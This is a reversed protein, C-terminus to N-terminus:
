VRRVDTVIAEVRARWHEGRAWCWAVADPLALLCEEYARMHDFRLALGMARIQTRLLFEDPKQTSTDQELILRTANLEGLDPVLRRLCADRARKNDHHQRADYLVATVGLDVVADVVKRRRPASEHSFHIRRQRPMILGRVVARAASLDPVQVSVAVLLFGREKTEDVFVHATVLVVQPRRSIGPM